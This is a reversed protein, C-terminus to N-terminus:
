RKGRDGGPTKGGPKGQGVRLQHPCNGRSCYTKGLEETRCTAGLEEGSQKREFFDYSDGGRKKGLNRPGGGDM